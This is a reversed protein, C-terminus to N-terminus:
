TQSHGALAFAARAASRGTIQIHKHVDLVVGEELPVALIDDDFHRNREVDGRQATGDLHGRHLTEGRQLNGGTGGAAGHQPQAALADRGDAASAKAVLMHPHHNFYRVPEVTGLALCEFGEGGSASTSASPGCSGSM